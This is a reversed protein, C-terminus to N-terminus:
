IKFQPPKKQNQEKLTHTPNFNNLQLTQPFEAKSSVALVIKEYKIYSHEPQEVCIWWVQYEKKMEFM